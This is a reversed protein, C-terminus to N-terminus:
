LVIGEMRNWFREHVRRGCRRGWRHHRKRPGRLFCLLSRHLLRGPAGSAPSAIWVLAWVRNQGCFYDTWNLETPRRERKEWIRNGTKGLQRKKPWFNQTIWFKSSDLPFSHHMKPNNRTLDAWFIKMKRFQAFFLNHSFFSIRFAAAFKVM